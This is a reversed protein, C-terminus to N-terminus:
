VRVTSRAALVRARRRKAIVQDAGLLVAAVALCLLSFQITRSLAKSHLASLKGQNAASSGSGGHGAIGALALKHNSSSNASITNTSGPGTNNISASSSGPNFGVVGGSSGGNSGGGAAATPANGAATDVGVSGTWNGFVNIFLVGFWNTLNLNSMSINLVNAAVNANGSTANGAKTNDSVNANGSQANLNVNNNIQNSANNTVNTTNANTSNIDNGSSPGTNSVTNSSGSGGNSTATANGGLLASKSGQPADMIFGVWHGLVNVMVLFANSGSVNQGVLNFLTVNDNATGTTASGASTNHAVTASGSNANTNLNNNIQNSTNNNVNATNSNNTGITNNSDPGTGNVQNNVGGAGGNASSTALLSDLFGPPFLIDGNLNGFINIAGFFSKGSSVASNIVNVLNLVVNAMGSTADGANTNGVVGASGSQAGLNIDNNIAGTAQNKITTTNGNADTITNSSDPGTGNVSSTGSAPTSGCGISCSASGLAGPDLTLDGTVNGFINKFFTTVNGGALSWLSNLVNVMNSMVSADGSLASGANTNGGVLANGSLANANLANNIQLNAFNDFFGTSGNSNTKDTGAVSQALPGAADQSPGFLSALFASVPDAVPTPVDQYKGSAPNYVWQTTNWHGTDPDFSYNPKDKPASQGTAPNWTYHDNEWLGTTANFSYTGADAGTPQQPGTAQTPGQTQAPPPTTTPTTSGTKSPHDKKWQEYSPNQPGDHHSQDPTTTTPPTAPDVVPAPAPDTTAPTTTDPPPTTTQTAPPTTTAPTADDAYVALPYVGVVTAILTSIFLKQLVNTKINLRKM